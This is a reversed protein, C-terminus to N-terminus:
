EGGEPEPTPEPAPPPTYTVTGDPNATLNQGASALVANMKEPFHTAVMGVFAALKALLAAGKTGIRPDSWFTANHKAGEDIIRTLQEAMGAGLTDSLQNIREIVSGITDPQHEIIM